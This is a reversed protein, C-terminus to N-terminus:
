EKILNLNNFIELYSKLLDLKNKQILLDNEDQLSNILLNIKERLINKQEFFDINQHNNSNNLSIDEPNIKSISSKNKQDTTIYSLKNNCNMCYINNQFKILVGGCKKCSSGLLTGGKLLMESGSKIDM